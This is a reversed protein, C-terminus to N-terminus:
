RLLFLRFIRFLNLLIFDKEISYRFENDMTKAKRASGQIATEKRPRRKASTRDFHTSRGMADANGYRFGSLHPRAHLQSNYYLTYLALLSGFRHM